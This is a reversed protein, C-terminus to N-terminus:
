GHIMDGDFLCDSPRHRMALRFGACEECDCHIGKEHENESNGPGHPRAYPDKRKMAAVM